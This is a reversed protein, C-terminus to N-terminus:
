ATTNCSSDSSHQLRSIESEQEAEVAAGFLSAIFTALRRGNGEEIDCFPLDNQELLDTEM